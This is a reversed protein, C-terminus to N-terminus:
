VILGYKRKFDQIWDDHKGLEEIAKVVQQITIRGVKSLYEKPISGSLFPWLGGEPSNIKAYKTFAPNREDHLLVFIGGKVLAFILERFFQYYNVFPCIKGNLMATELFGLEEMQNWYLRGIHHLYCNEYNNHRPNMGECDGGAFVSCGGFGREVLKAEVFVTNSEGSLILDISTPQGRDENFISRDDYEFSADVQGSPWKLNQSALAIRLPELDNRVILPGVLNFVMAQSSLGHHLYKHLPYTEEGEPRSKEHNIYEVVDACIINQPWQEHKALCYAMRPHTEYGRDKFWSKASEHLMKEFRKYRPFPWNKVLQRSKEKKM